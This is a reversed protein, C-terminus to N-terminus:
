WNEPNTIVVRTGNVLDLGQLYLCLISIEMKVGSVIETIYVKELDLVRKYFGEGYM